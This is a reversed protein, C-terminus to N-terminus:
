RGRPAQRLRVIRGDKMIMALSREPDTLIAIDAFPDGEVLLLDARWGERVEGFNGWRNLRGALRVIEASESTAQRLIEAPSFFRTRAVLERSVEPYAGFVMDTGFGTKIRYKRILAMLREQGELVRRLKARNRETMGPLSGALEFVAVQTSIPVEKEACLRATPEDILHGHEIVKVGNNVLRQVAASTYAHAMVYTGWDGAAQVAARIEEASPQLSDLPDYDSAVGGGGMIKIQTAGLRLNERVAALTQPVGDALVTFGHALVMGCGCGDLRPHGAWPPRFDGHGGTQSVIAGSPFVRPGEILGSEIARAFDPHTGGADRVTTFGHELYWRAASAALAGGVSPHLFPQDKPFQVNLHAHLDILGPMLIRGAGDIVRAGAPPEIPDSSVRRILAGEVLVHGAVLQEHVGDFIRVDRLLVAREPAAAEASSAASGAITALLTAAAAARLIVTKM